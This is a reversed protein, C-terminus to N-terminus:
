RHGEVVAGRSFQEQRLASLITASVVPPEWRRSFSAPESDPAQACRFRKARPKLNRKLLM